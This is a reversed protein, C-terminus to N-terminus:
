CDPPSGGPGWCLEAPACKRHFCCKSACITRSPCGDDDCPAGIPATQTLSPPIQSFPEYSIPFASASRGRAGLGAAALWVALGALLAVWIISYSYWYM